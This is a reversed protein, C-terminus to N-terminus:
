RSWSPVYDKLKELSSAGVEPVAALADMDPIPREDVINRAADADLGVEVDLVDYSAQNAIELVVREEDATFDVGEYSGGPDIEGDALWQVITLITQDGVQPVADVDDLSPFPDDDGTGCAEDPGDRRSVLAGAADSDLGVDDDLLSLTTSCANLFDLVASVEADTLGLREQTSLSEPDKTVSVDTGCAALALTLGFGALSAVPAARRRVHALLTM